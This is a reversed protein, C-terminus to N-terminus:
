SNFAEKWFVNKEIKVYILNLTWVKLRYNKKIKTQLEAELLNIWKTDSFIMRRICSSKLASSFETFDRYIQEFKGINHIFIGSNFPYAIIEINNLVVASWNM